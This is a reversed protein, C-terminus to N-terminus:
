LSNTVEMGKESTRSANVPRHKMYKNFSIDSHIIHKIWKDMFGQIESQKWQGKNIIKDMEILKKLMVNHEKEHAQFDHYDLKKMLMEEAVFHEKVHQYLLELHDQLEKKSGAILLKKALNFLNKHQSDVKDDGM